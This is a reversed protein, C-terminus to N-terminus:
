GSQKWPVTQDPDINNVKFVVKFCLCIFYCVVFTTVQPFSNLCINKAVAICRHLAHHSLELQMSEKVRMNSM